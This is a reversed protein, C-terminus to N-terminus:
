HCVAIERPLFPHHNQEAYQQFISNTRVFFTIVASAIDGSIYPLQKDKYRQTNDKNNPCHKDWLTAILKLAKDVPINTYMNTFDMSAMVHGKPLFLRSKDKTAYM